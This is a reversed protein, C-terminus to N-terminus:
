PLMPVRWMCLHAGFTLACRFQLQPHACKPRMRVVLMLARQGVVERVQNTNDDATSSSVNLKGFAGVFLSIRACRGPQDCRCCLVREKQRGKEGEHHGKNNQGSDGNKGQTRSNNKSGQSTDEKGGDNWGAKAWEMRKDGETDEGFSKNGKGISKAGDAGGWIAAVPMPTVDARGTRLFM